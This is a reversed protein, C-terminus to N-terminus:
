VSHTLVHPLLEVAALNLQFKMSAFLMRQSIVLFDSKFADFPM